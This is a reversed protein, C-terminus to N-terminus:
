LNIFHSFGSSISPSIAINSDANTSEATVMAKDERKREYFNLNLYSLNVLKSLMGMFEFEDINELMNPYLLVSLKRLKFLDKFGYCIALIEQTALSDCRFNLSLETLETLKLLNSSFLEFANLEKKHVGIMLHLDTLNVLEALCLSLSTLGSNFIHDGLIEM